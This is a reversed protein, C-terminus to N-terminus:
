VSSKGPGTALGKWASVVAVTIIVAVIIEPIGQTIGVGLAVQPTMWGKGGPSLPSIVAMTLVLVTNTLTGAVAAAGIALLEMQGRLAFYAFVGAGIIGLLVILAGLVQYIIFATQGTLHIWPSTPDGGFDFVLNKPAFNLADRAFIGVLVLIAAAIAFGVSRNVRRLGQYVFYPTIGIFIRPLIAVLPDRFLPITADVFSFLGFIAGVVAGVGWGELIGGIIAPVHMITANAAPTPVPIFGLRTTGLFIAVAGLAGAVVIRRAPSSTYPMTTTAM